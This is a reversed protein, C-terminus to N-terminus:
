DKELKFTKANANANNINTIASSFTLTVTDDNNRREATLYSISPITYSAVTITSTNIATRNRTDTATVEVTITGTYNINSFDVTSGTQSLLVTNGNKLKVTYSSITSSYVGSASSVVRLTSKSQVYAGYTSYYSTTDSKTVSNMTPVVSSPVTMQFPSSIPEGIRTSGDYTEVVVFATSSTSNIISNCFGMDITGSFTTTANNSLVQTRDGLKIYVKHTFSTSARTITGSIAQGITGGSLTDVSSARPITSMAVSISATPQTNSVIYASASITVNNLSGNSNHYFPGIKGSYVTKTQGKSIKFYTKPISYTNNEGTLTANVYAGGTENYTGSTTTASISVNIYSTNNEISVDTESATISLSGGFLQINLKLKEM